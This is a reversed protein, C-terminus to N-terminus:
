QVCMGCETGCMSSRGGVTGTISCRVGVTGGMSCRSGIVYMGSGGIVHLGWLSCVVNSYVCVV